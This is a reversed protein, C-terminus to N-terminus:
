ENMLPELFGKNAEAVEKTEYYKKWLYYSEKFSLGDGIYIYVYVLCYLCLMFAFVSM